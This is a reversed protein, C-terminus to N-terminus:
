ENEVGRPTLVVEPVVGVVLASAINLEIDEPVATDIVDTLTKILEVSVSTLPVNGVGEVIVVIAVNRVDTVFAVTVSVPGTCVFEDAVAKRLVRGAEDARVVNTESGVEM